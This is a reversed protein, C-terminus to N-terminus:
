KLRRVSILARSNLRVLRNTESNNPIGTGGFLAITPALAKEWLEPIWTSPQANRRSPKPM